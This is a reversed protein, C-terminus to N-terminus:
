PRSGLEARQQELQREEIRVDLRTGREPKDLKNRDAMRAVSPEPSTAECGIGRRVEYRIEYRDWTM